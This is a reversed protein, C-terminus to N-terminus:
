APGNETPPSKEVQGRRQLWLIFLWCASAWAAGVAWGAIVDTPWHVGLYIRSIGVMLALLLAVSIAYVKLRLASSYRMVIVGLTLYVTASLMAHSSPFSLTFVETGHAVLDPRPRDFIFKLANNLITGGVLAISLLLAAHPRKSMLLWFFVVLSIFILAFTSGFATVDRATEELWAPGLPNATDGPSRLSLMVWEDFARSEGEVVEDAIEFFVWVSAAMTGILLVPIAEIGPAKRYLRHAKDRLQAWFGTM